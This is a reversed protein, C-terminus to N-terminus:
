AIELFGAAGRALMAGLFPYALHPYSASNTSSARASWERHTQCNPHFTTKGSPILLSCFLWSWGHTTTADCGRGRVRTVLMWTDAGEGCWSTQVGQVHGTRVCRGGASRTPGHRRSRRWVLVASRPGFAPFADRARESGDGGGGKCVIVLMRCCCGSCPTHSRPQSAGMLVNM